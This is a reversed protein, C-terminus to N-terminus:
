DEYLLRLHFTKFKTTIGLKKHAAFLLRDAMSFLITGGDIFGVEGWAMFEEPYLLKQKIHIPQSDKSPETSLELWYYKASPFAFLERLQMTCAFDDGGAVLGEFSRYGADVLRLRPSTIKM